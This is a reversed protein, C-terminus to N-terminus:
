RRTYRIDKIEITEHWGSFVVNLCTTIKHQGTFDSYCITMPFEITEEHIDMGRSNWEAELMISLDQVNFPSKLSKDGNPVINPKVRIEEGGAIRSVTAFGATYQGVVFPEVTVAHADSPGINELLFVSFHTAALIKEREFKPIIRPDSERPVGGLIFDERYLLWPARILRYVLLLLFVSAFSSISILARVRVSADHLVLYTFGLGAATVPISVLLASRISAGTDHFGRKLVECSYRWFGIERVVTM